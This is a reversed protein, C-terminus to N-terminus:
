CHQLRDHRTQDLSMGTVDAEQGANGARLDDCSGASGASGASGRGSDRRDPLIFYDPILSSLTRPLLARGARRSRASGSQALSERGRRGVQFVQRQPGVDDASAIAELIEASILAVITDTAIIGGVM